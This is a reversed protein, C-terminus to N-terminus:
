IKIDNQAQMAHATSFAKSTCSTVNNHAILIVQARRSYHLSLCTFATFKLLIYPNVPLHFMLFSIFFHPFMIM